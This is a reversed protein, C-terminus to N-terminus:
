ESLELIFVPIPIEMTDERLEITPYTKEWFLFRQEKLGNDVEARLARFM